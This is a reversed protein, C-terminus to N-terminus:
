TNWPGLFGGCAWEETDTGGKRAVVAWGVGSGWVSVWGLDRPLSLTHMYIEDGKLIATIKM